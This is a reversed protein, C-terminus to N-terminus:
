VDQTEMPLSFFFTAGAGPASEAWVRGGHRNVIRRVIALGVGTGPFDERSHLREFVGFLKGYHRMDFGVGNDKVSYVINAGDRRGRIEIRPADVKQSYKVANSLLNVWVQLILKRDALSWPLEGSDVIAECGPNAQAALVQSERVLAAMDVLSKVVSERGLRSFALLDDILAGMRQASERIVNIYRKGTDDLHSESAEHLLQAFGDIARLPTRLDHSVSYSFSELEANAVQLQNSNDVLKAEVAKQETIDRATAYLLGQAPLPQCKWSLWKWTGDKCQYRNVFNITSQGGALKEVEALTVPRDDPHIFEVFPRAVLEETSYGLTESFAPNLRKFYGDTGAICLLDLSLNFFRDREAEARRRRALHGRSLQYFIGFGAITLVPILILMHVVQRSTRQDLLQRDALLHRDENQMESLSRDLLLSVGSLRSDELLQTAMGSGSKDRTQIVEDLLQRRKLAMQRLTDLRWQQVANDATLVKLVRLSEDIQRIAEARHQEYVPRDHLVYARAASLAEDLSEDTTSLLDLVQYTHRVWQSSRIFGSVTGYAIIATAVVATVGVAAAALTWFEASQGEAERSRQEAPKQPAPRRANEASEGGSAAPSAIAAGTTADSTASM